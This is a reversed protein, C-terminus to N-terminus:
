HADIILLRYYECIPHPRVDIGIGLREVSGIDALRRTIPSDRPSGIWKSVSDDNSIVQLAHLGMTGMALIFGKVGEVDLVVSTEPAMYGFSHDVGEKSVFRMGSVYVMDGIDVTSFIIKSLAQPISRLHTQVLRAGSRFLWRPGNGVIANVVTLESNGLSSSPLSSTADETTLHLRLLNGVIRSLNWVRKRNKLGPSLNTDETLNYLALWNGTHKSDQTEFLFGREHEPEFRSAWFTQSSTLQNFAKSAFRLSLAYQTPLYSAITELIELPLTSLEDKREIRSASQSLERHDLSALRILDSSIKPYDPLHTSSQPFRLASTVLETIEPVECPNERCMEVIKLDTHM